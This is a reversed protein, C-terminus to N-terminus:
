EKIVLRFNESEADTARLMAEFKEAYEGLSERLVAMKRIELTIKMGSLVDHLADLNRGFYSPTKLKKELLDYLEKRSDVKGCNVIIRKM